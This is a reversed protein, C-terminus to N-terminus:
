RERRTRGRAGAGRVDAVLVVALSPIPAYDDNNNSIGVYDQRLHGLGDRPLSLDNAVVSPRLCDRGSQKTALAGRLSALTAEAEARLRLCSEECRCCLSEDNRAFCDILSARILETRGSSTSPRVACSSEDPGGNMIRCARWSRRFNILAEKINRWRCPRSQAFGVQRRDTGLNLFRPGIRHFIVPAAAGPIS